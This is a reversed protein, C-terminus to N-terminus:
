AYGVSRRDFSVAKVLAYIQQGEALGLDVRSRKTIRAVLSAAGVRLQIEVVPCAPDAIAVLTGRLINGVSVREPRTLALAVDRARIRVRVREGILAEVNPVILEGGDFRLTTLGYETDHAAVVTDIVAGAEYRGTQPRLDLRGMVEDVDGVAIAKGDSLIVVTDALRTIEAVSHSVYVIPIALDDRLLEIYRLVEDRRAVDLSALPEDMVLLRPRALLARGIAVRQKEGGSLNAPRRDLLAGIGLLEVIQDVEGAPRPKPAFWRGYLLNQRVSLHPFLRGEQFVYGIKRQRAPVFVRRATDTLVAGDVLIRGREPRILGAIANVLSTKGSGSRGFLATLGAGSEFAADLLFDGLRHQVAVSLMAGGAVAGPRAAHRARDVGRLRVIGADLDRDLRADTAIGRSRRGASPDAHLDRDAIDPDRRSHELCLHDDRRIRRTGPCLVPDHRRPHGAPDIAAHDHRFDVARERWADGRRRRPPSRHRGAVAPDLAGLAPLGHSRLRAGRRDLPVCLRHGAPRRSIRWDIREPRVVAAPYLRHRGAPHRAASARHCQAAVKGLVTWAIVVLRGRHRGAPQRADGLVRGALVVPDGDAGRAFLRSRLEGRETSCPSGRRRFNREHPPATCIRWCLPLM